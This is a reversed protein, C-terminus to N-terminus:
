KYYKRTKLMSTNNTITITDGDVSLVRVSSLGIDEYHLTQKIREKENKDYQVRLMFFTLILCIFLFLMAPKNKLFNILVYSSTFVNFRNKIQM